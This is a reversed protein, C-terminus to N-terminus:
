KDSTSRVQSLISGFRGYGTSAGSSTTIRLPEYWGESVEFRLGKPRRSKCADWVEKKTAKRGLRQELPGLVERVLKKVAGEGRGNNKAFPKGKRALPALFDTLRIERWRLRMWELHRFNEEKNGSRLAKWALERRETLEQHAPSGKITQLWADFGPLDFAHMACWMRFAEEKVDKM